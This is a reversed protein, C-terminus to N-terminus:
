KQHDASAPTAQADHPEDAFPLLAAEEFQKRHRPTYAWWCVGAFAIMVFVPSLSRWFNLDM